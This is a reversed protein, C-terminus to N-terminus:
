AMCRARGTHPPGLLLKVHIEEKIQLAVGLEPDSKGTASSSVSTWLPGSALSPARTLSPKAFPYGPPSPCPVWTNGSHLHSTYPITHHRATTPPHHSPPLLTPGVTVQSDWWVQRSDAESSSWPCWAPGQGASCLCGLAPVEARSGVRTACVGSAWRLGLHLEPTWTSGSCQWDGVSGTDGRSRWCGQPPLFSLPAPPLDM